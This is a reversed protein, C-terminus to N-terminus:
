SQGGMGILAADKLLNQATTRSCDLMKGIEQHSFGRERYTVAKRMLVKREATIRGHLRFGEQLATQRTSALVAAELASFAEIYRLKWALATKSSWGMVLLTFANRDLLYAPDKRTAGNGIQTDIQMPEFKLGHGSEPLKHLLIAIDRLVNKHKVGFHRAVDLSSVVPTQGDSLFEVSVASNAINETAM